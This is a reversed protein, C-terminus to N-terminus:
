EPVIKSFCFQEVKNLNFSFQGLLYAIYLFMILFINLM